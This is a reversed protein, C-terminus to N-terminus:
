HAPPEAAGNQYVWQVLFDLARQARV